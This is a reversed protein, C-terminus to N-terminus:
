MMRVAGRLLAKPAGPKSILFSPLWLHPVLGRDCQKWTAFSLHSSPLRGWLRQELCQVAGAELRPVTNVKSRPSFIATGLASALGPLALITMVKLKSETKSVQTREKM